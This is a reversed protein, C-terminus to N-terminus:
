RPGLTSVQRCCNQGCGRRSRRARIESCHLPRSSSYDLSQQVTRRAQSGDRHNGCIVTRSYPCCGFVKEVVDSSQNLIRKPDRFRGVPTQLHMRLLRIAVVLLSFGDHKSGSHDSETLKQQVQEVHGHRFGKTSRSKSMGPCRPPIDEESSAICGDSIYRPGDFVGVGRSKREM